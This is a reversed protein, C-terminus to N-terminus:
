LLTYPSFPLVWPPLLSVEELMAVVRYVEDEEMAVIRLATLLDEPFVVKSALSSIKRQGSWSHGTILLEEPKTSDGNAEECFGRSLVSSPVLWRLPLNQLYLSKPFLESWFWFKVQRIPFLFWYFSVYWNKLCSSRLIMVIKIRWHRSQFISRCKCCSM